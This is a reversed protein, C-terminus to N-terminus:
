ALIVVLAASPLGKRGGAVGGTTVADINLGQVGPLPREDKFVLAQVKYDVLGTWMPLGIYALCGPSWSGAWKCPCGHWSRGRGARAQPLAAKDARPSRCRRRV